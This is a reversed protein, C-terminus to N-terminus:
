EVLPVVLVDGPHIDAGSPLGNLEVIADVVARPDAQADISRALGWMTDGSEVVVTTTDLRGVDTSGAGPRLVALAAAAVLVIWLLAVM